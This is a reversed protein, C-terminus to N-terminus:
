NLTASSQNSLRALDDFLHVGSLHEELKTEQEADEADQFNYTWYQYQKQFTADINHLIQENANMKLDEFSANPSIQQILKRNHLLLINKTIDITRKKAELINTCDQRLSPLKQELIRIRELLNFPNVDNISGNLYERDIRSEVERRLAALNSEVQQFQLHVNNVSQQM